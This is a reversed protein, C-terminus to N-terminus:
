FEQLNTGRWVRCPVVEVDTDKWLCLGTSLLFEQMCLEGADLQLIKYHSLESKVSDALFFGNLQPAHPSKVNLM